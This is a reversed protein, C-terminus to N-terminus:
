IIKIYRENGEDTTDIGARDMELQRPGNQMHQNSYYKVLSDLKANLLEQESTCDPFPESRGTRSCFESWEEELNCEKKIGENSSPTPRFHDLKKPTSEMSNQSSETEEHINNNSNHNNLTIRFPLPRVCCAPIYGEEGEEDSDIPFKMCYYNNGNMQLVEVLDGEKIALYENALPGDSIRHDMIVQYVNEM